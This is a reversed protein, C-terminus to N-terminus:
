YDSNEFSFEKMCNPCFYIETWNHGDIGFEYAAYRSSSYNESRPYVAEGNPSEGRVSFSRGNEEMKTCNVAERGDFYYFEGDFGESSPDWGCDPCIYDNM